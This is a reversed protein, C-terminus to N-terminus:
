AKAIAEIVSDFLEAIDKKKKRKSDIIKATLERQWRPAHGSGGSKRHKKLSMGGVGRAKKGKHAGNHKKSM